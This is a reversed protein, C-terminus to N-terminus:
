LCCIKVPDLCFAQSGTREVLLDTHNQLDNKSYSVDLYKTKLCHMCLRATTLPLRPAMKLMILYQFEALGVNYDGSCCLRLGVATFM